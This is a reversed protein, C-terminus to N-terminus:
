TTRQHRPAPRGPHLRHDLLRPLRGVPRGRAARGQEQLDPDALDCDTGLGQIYDLESRLGKLDGGNYFGKSTPDFGSVLPDGGLGGTDNAPDGNEFRDAMVFYFNEDTVGARLSHGAVGGQHRPDAGAPNAALPVVLGLLLAVVALLVPRPSLRM